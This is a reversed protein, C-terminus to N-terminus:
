AGLSGPWLVLLDGVDLVAPRSGAPKFNTKTTSKQLKVDQAKKPKNPKKLPCSFVLNIAVRSLAALYNVPLEVQPVRSSNVEHKPELVCWTGM